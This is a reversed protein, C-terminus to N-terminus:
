VFKSIMYWGTHSPQYPQAKQVVYVDVIGAERDPCEYKYTGVGTKPDWDYEVLSWGNVGDAMEVAAVM